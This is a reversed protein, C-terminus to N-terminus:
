PTLRPVLAVCLSRVGQAGRILVGEIDATASPGSQLVGYRSSAWERRAYAAHLDAVIEAPDLLVLLHQPLYGLAEVGLEVETLCVSGTEAVGFAARVIVLDLRDPRVQPAAHWSPDLRGGPEPRPAHIAAQAGYRACVSAALEDAAPLIEGGMRRLNEVFRDRDSADAPQGPTAEPLPHTREPARGLRALIRSRDDGRTPLDSAPQPQSTM